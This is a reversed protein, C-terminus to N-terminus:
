ILVSWCQFEFLVAKSACLFTLARVKYDAGYQDCLFCRHAGLRCDPCYWADVDNLPGQMQATAM